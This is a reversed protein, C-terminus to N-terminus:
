KDINTNMKFNQTLPGNERHVAAQWLQQGQYASLSLFLKQGQLTLVQCIQMRGRYHTVRVSTHRATSM